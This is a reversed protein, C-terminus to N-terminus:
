GRALREKLASLRQDVSKERHLSELESLQADGAMGAPVGTVRAIAELSRAAREEPAPAEGPRGPTIRGASAQSRKLETLRAEAERRAAVIAAIANRADAIEENTVDLAARLSASQAELDMQREVGLKALDERGAELASAIQEDLALRERDIEDSRASIRFHEATKLALQGRTRGAEAEIDRIAQQVVSLPDTMEAKDVTAHALGAVLRGVRSLIGEYAM